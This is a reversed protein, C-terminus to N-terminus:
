SFASFVSKQDPQGMKKLYKYHSCIADTFSLQNYPMSFEKAKEQILKSIKPYLTHPLKPYLHHAAHANFGGLLLNCTKSLPAYDLSTALQHTYYDYPLEGGEDMVPFQTEMCLHTAILVHIFLLSNVMHMLFFALLIATPSYGLWVPIFVLMLIYTLKWFIFFLIQGVPYGDNIINGVRKKLLYIIDKVLFWHLTYISYVAIAYLHQYRQHKKLPHQPSLRLFPNNDIDADCGDVNPFVHHSSNHRIKWLWASTGQMNFSIHYLLSNIQKNKSFASHCADHSVNFGLLIGSIGAFLYCLILRGTTPDAQSYLVFYSSIHLLLYFIMKLWLTVRAKKLWDTSVLQEQVDKNLSKFFASSSGANYKIKKM